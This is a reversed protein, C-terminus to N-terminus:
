MERDIITNIYIRTQLKNKRPNTILVNVAMTTM